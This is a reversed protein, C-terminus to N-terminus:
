AKPLHKYFYFYGLAGLASLVVLTPVLTWGLFGLALVLSFALWLVPLALAILIKWNLDAAYEWERYLLVTLAMMFIRVLPTLFLEPAQSTVPLTLFDRIGQIFIMGALWYLLFYSSEGSEHRRGWLYFFGLVPIWLLAFETTFLSATLGPLDFGMQDRTRFLWYLVSLVFTWVLGGLWASMRGIPRKIRFWSDLLGLALLPSLIAFIGM